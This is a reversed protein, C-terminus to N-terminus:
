CRPLRLSNVLDGDPKPVRMPSTVMPLQTQQDADGSVLDHTLNGRELSTPLVGAQLCTVSLALVDSKEDVGIIQSGSHPVELVWRLAVVFTLQALRTRSWLADLPSSQVKQM